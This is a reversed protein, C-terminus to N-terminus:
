EQSNFTQSWLPFPSNFFIPSIQNCIILNIFYTSDFFIREKRVRSILKKLRPIEFDYHFDKKDAM